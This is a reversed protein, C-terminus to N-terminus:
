ATPLLYIVDKRTIKWQSNTLSLIYFWVLVPPLYSISFPFYTLWQNLDYVNAFGIFPTILSSSLVVLLLALWLDAKTKQKIGRNVLLGAFILGQLICIFILISRINLFDYEM